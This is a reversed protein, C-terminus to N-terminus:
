MPFADVVDNHADTTEYRIRLPQGANSKITVSTAKGDQWTESVIFNGQAKLGTVSGEKWASPLAPLITIVDDYSQLLMECIGSTCGYNGDIQFPSHADFLNYYCGGYNGMEIVCLLRSTREPETAM